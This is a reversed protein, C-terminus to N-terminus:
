TRNTVSAHIASLTLHRVFNAPGEQNGLHPVIAEAGGGTVFLQAVDNGTPAMRAILEGIAGVAGWHLGSAIARETNKGVVSVPQRFGSADIRPLSATASHLADAALSVGPMIAGGEFAGDAAVLDVTVATGVDVVIAPKTPDRLRNVGVANLLRDIGVWEPHDVRIDLALDSHSLQQPEDWHLESWLQGLVSDIEPRVSAVVTQPEASLEIELWNAMSQLGAGSEHLHHEIALTATPEALRPAAIPLDMTPKDLCAAPPAFWGLKTRSSGVDIALIGNANM